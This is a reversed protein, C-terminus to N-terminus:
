FIRSKDELYDKLKQASDTGLLAKRHQQVNKAFATSAASLDEAAKASETDLDKNVAEVNTTEILLSRGYIDALHEYFAQLDRTLQRYDTDPINKLNKLRDACDELKKVGKVNQEIDSMDGSCDHVVPRVQEISTIIAANYDIFAQLDDNFATYLAKGEGGQLVEEKALADNEVGLSTFASRLATISQEFEKDTASSANIAINTQVLATNVHTYQALADRYPQRQPTVLIGYILLALVVVLGVALVIVLPKKNAIMDQM